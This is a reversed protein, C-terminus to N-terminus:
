FLIFQGNLKIRSVPRGLCQGLHVESCTECSKLYSESLSLDEM